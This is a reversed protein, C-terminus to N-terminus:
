QAVGAVSKGSIANRLCERRRLIEGHLAIGLDYAAKSRLHDPEFHRTTHELAALEDGKLEALNLEM